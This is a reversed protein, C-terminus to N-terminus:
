CAKVEESTELSSYRRAEKLKQNDGSTEQSIVVYSRDRGEDESPKRGQTDKRGQKEFEEKGM